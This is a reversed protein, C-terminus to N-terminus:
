LQAAHIWEEESTGQTRGDSSVRSERKLSKVEEELEVKERM